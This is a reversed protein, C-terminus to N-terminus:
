CLFADIDREKRLLLDHGVQLQRSLLWMKLKGKFM